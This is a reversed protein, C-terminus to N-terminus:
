SGHRSASEGKASSSGTEELRARPDPLQCGLGSEGSRIKGHRPPLWLRSRPLEIANFSSLAPETHCTSESSSAAALFPALLATVIALEGLLLRQRFCLWDNVLADLTKLIEKCEDSDSSSM